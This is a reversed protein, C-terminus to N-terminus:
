RGLRDSVASGVFSHVLGHRVHRMHLALPSLTHSILRSHHRTPRNAPRLIPAGRKAGATTGGCEEPVHGTRLFLRGLAM